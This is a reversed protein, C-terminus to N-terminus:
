SWQPESPCSWSDQSPPFRHCMIKQLIENLWDAGRWAGGGGSLVFLTCAISATTDKFKHSSRVAHGARLEEPRGSCAEDARRQRLLSGPWPSPASRFHRRLPKFLNIGRGSIAGGGVARGAQGGGAAKSRRHVLRTRTPRFHRRLPKFLNFGRGSIADEGPRRDALGRSATTLRRRVLGIRAPRFHRRLLKFLNFGRGSIAGEGPRWDTQGRSATMSRRHVPRIRTPRFHRRLPKFCNFGRGANRPGTM